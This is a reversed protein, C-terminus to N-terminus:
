VTNAILIEHYPWYHIMKMPRKQVSTYAYVHLTRVTKATQLCIVENFVFISADHKGLEPLLHLRFENPYITADNIIDPM